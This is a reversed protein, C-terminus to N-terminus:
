HFKAFCGFYSIIGFSNQRAVFTHLINARLTRLVLLDINKTTCNNYFCFTATVHGFQKLKDHGDSLVLHSKM